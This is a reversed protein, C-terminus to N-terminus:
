EIGTAPSDNILGCIGERLSDTAAAVVATAGTRYPSGDAQTVVGGAEEVLLVGAGYDWTNAMRHVMADFRGCAVYALALAASGINRTRLVRPALIGIDHLGVWLSEPNFDITLHVFANDPDSVGSSAIPQGNLYAGMGRGAAFTERVVPDAIVGLVPQDDEFLSISVCWIPLGHAFNVTGDLPDIYWCRGSRAPASSGEEAVLGDDPFAERIHSTILAESATDAATVVDKDGKARAEMRDSGIYTLILGAAQRAIDVAIELEDNYSM